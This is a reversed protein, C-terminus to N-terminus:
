HILIHWQLAVTVLLVYWASNCGVGSFGFGQLKEVERWRIEYVKIALEVRGGGVAWSAM